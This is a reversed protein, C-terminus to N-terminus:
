PLNMNLIDHNLHGDSTSHMPKYPKLALQTQLTKCDRSDSASAFILEKMRMTLANSTNVWRIQLFYIVKRKRGSVSQNFSCLCKNKGRSGENRLDPRSHSRHRGVSPPDIAILTRDKIVTIRRPSKWDM